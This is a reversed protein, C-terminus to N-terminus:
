RHIRFVVKRCQLPNVVPVGTRHPEGPFFVCFRGVAAHVVVLPDGDCFCVDKVADYPTADKVAERWTLSMLEEGELLIELDTTKRHAEYRDDQGGSLYSVINYSVEQNKTSYSGNKMEYVEGKDMVEIVTQLEPLISLYLELNDLTDFLM